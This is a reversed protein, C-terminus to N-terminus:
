GILPTWSMELCVLLLQILLFSLFRRNVCVHIAAIQPMCLFLPRHQHFFHSALSVKGAIIKFQLLQLEIITASGSVERVTRSERRWTFPKTGSPLRAPQVSSASFM